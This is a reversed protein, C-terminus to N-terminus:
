IMDLITVQITINIFNVFTIVLIIFQINLIALLKVKRCGTLSIFNVFFLGFM